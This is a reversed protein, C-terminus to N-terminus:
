KKFASTANLVITISIPAREAAPTSVLFRRGDRSPVYHTRQPSVAAGTDTQFLAKPGSFSPGPEVSVVMLKQDASLYYIERGDARWRPEYGGDTSITWQRDSRPFTQVHVEFRGSESSTYAVLRGDPSFNGHWQDGPASLFNTPKSDGRLPLVWLDVDSAATASYLLSMGDPSWDTLVMISGLGIGATRIAKQTLVPTEEGGGGASKVYFESLGGARTTRFVIRSGDPSWIASANIVPGFTFPSSTGRSLDTVWLDPYGTKPEVRSAALRTEDPSIRFDTYDGVAGVSGSANGARDFWTLRSPASLMPAYALTGTDSLSFAGGGASSRGIGGEVVFPEGRLELRDTDFAQSMLTDGNLFFLHGVGYRGVTQAGITRQGSILLKKLKGDLSGVYVGSYDPVGSRVLFLFHTGDPLFQPFRQQGEAHSGDLKVVPTVRGGSSSVRLIGSNGMSFLITDDRGWSGPRPDPADAIVQVLGDATQVKKLKGDAFFGIQRGDPSWFPSDAGETGAFSHATVSDLLRLWLTPRAGPAAAVYVLARGDPSMEFQPVGVTSYSSGSFSASEPPLISLRVVDRRVDAVQASRIGYFSATVIGALAAIWATGERWRIRAAKATPGIAAEDAAGAMIENLDIRADAIDHLRQDPDKTLCRRLLSRLGTPIGSPLRTWDPENKVLAAVVDTLTEGDFAKTGTLMEYLVSGFAWIDTRKDVARGRAQEPSMYAATGLIVGSVTMAPMTMTPSNTLAARRSGSTDTELLKALGFDLVKVRGDSTVKINAPKLDRHIIGQEHAAELAEAIQKAIPLAEDIPMAGRAIRRSLDDGEVLEMVLAPVGGAKELGYIHAINPHNLAALTRAEREFRALREPDNSFAAPLVKLAVPRGLNTDTARYVEGMGGAGLPATIEYAGLRTGLALAV